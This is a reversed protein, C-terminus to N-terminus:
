PRPDVRVGEDRASSTEAQATAAELLERRLLKGDRGRPIREVTLVATPVMFDPVQGRLFGAVEARSFVHARSRPVLFATATARRADKGAPLVAVDEVESSQRLVEELALMSYKRGDRIVVDDARGVIEIAGTDNRRALDGTPYWTGDALQPSSGDVYRTMMRTTACHLEGIEGAAADRGDPGLIRVEGGGFVYGVTREHVDDSDTVRTALFGGGLETSGYGVVVLADFAARIRRVVDPTAPEAGLGVVLLKPFREPRCASTRALLDAMTPTAVLTTVREQELLDLAVAPVFEEPVVFPSGELLAQLLVTHGAVGQLSLPTMWTGARAAAVFQPMRSVMLRGLRLAHRGRMGSFFERKSAGLARASEIQADHSLAVGKPRGTAGSSYFIIATDPDPEAGAHMTPAMIEVRDAAVSSEGARTWGERSQDDPGSRLVAIPQTEGLIRDFDAPPTAAVDVPVPTANLALVGLLSVIYSRKGALALVVRDGERCGVDRLSRSLAQAEEVVQDRSLRGRESVIAFKGRPRRLEEWVVDGFRTTTM